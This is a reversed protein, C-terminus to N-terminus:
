VLEDININYEELIDFFEKYTENIAQYSNKFETEELKKRSNKLFEWVALCLDSSKVCRLHAMRDDPNDLNFILKARM